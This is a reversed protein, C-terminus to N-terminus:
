PRTKARMAYATIAALVAGAAVDAVYHQKTMVTSVCVLAASAIGWAFLRRSAFRLGIAAYVAVSCHASPFCNTMPDFAHVGRLLWAGFGHASEPVPTRDVRVPLAVWLVTSLLIILTNGLLYRRLQRTEGLTCYPIVSFVHVGLYVAAFAPVLPLRALLADDFTRAQPQDTIKAAVFYLVGWVFWVALGIAGWRAIETPERAGRLASAGAAVVIVSEIGLIVPPSPLPFGALELLCWVQGCAVLAVLVYLLVHRARQGGSVHGVHGSHGVPAASAM